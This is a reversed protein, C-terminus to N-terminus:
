KCVMRIRVTYGSIFVDEFVITKTVNSDDEVRVHLILDREFENRVLLERVQPEYEKVKEFVYDFISTDIVRFKAFTKDSRFDIIYSIFEVHNQPVPIGALDSTTIKRTYYKVTVGRCIDQKKERKGVEVSIM